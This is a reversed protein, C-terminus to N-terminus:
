WERDEFKTFYKFIFYIAGAFILSLCSILINLVMIKGRFDLSGKAYMDFVLVSLVRPYTVGLIYPTEFSAFLYSLVIFFSVGLNPLILPLVIKKFFDLSSLNYIKGLSDWKKEVRFMIPLTMMTMFPLTKWIYTLIISIGYKENTLIPFQNSSLIGFKVFLNHLIGNKMFMLLIGYASVLYPIFTPSEVFKQFLKIHAYNKRKGLFILFLLVVTLTISIFASITNIKVTYIFSEYVEKSSLIERYFNLTFCSPRLIRNFGISTMFVYY